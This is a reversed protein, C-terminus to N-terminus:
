PEQVEILDGSPTAEVWRRVDAPKTQLNSFIHFDNVSMHHARAWDSFGVWRTRPPMPGRADSDETVLWFSRLPDLERSPSYARYFDYGVSGEQHHFAPQAHYGEPLRPTLPM